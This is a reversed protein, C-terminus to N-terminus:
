LYNKSLRIVENQMETCAASTKQEAAVLLGLKQKQTPEDDRDLSVTQAAADGYSTRAAEIKELYPALEPAYFGVLMQLREIPPPGSMERKTGAVTAFRESLSKKYAFRLRSLAEHTEELKSLLLKKTERARQTRTQLYSILAAISGGVIAGVLAAIVGIWGASSTPNCM